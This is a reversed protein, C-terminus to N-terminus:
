WKKSENQLMVSSVRKRSIQYEIFSQKTDNNRQIYDNISELNYTKNYRQM